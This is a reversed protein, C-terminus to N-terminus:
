PDNVDLAPPWLYTKPRWEACATLVQNIALLIVLIAFSRRM